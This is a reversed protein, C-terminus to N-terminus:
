PARHDALQKNSLAMRALYSIFFPVGQPLILKLGVTQLTSFAETLFSVSKMIFNWACKFLMYTLYFYLPLVLSERTSGLDGIPLKGLSLLVVMDEQSQGKVNLSSVGAWAM